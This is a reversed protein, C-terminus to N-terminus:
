GRRSRKVTITLGLLTGLKDLTALEMGGKGAMFRSMSAQPWGIQKCIAYRTLGSANVADRIQDSLPRTDMGHDYRMRLAFALIM